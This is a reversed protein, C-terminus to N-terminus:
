RGYLADAVKLIARAIMKSHRSTMRQNLSVSVTRTLVSITNPCMDPSYEVKGIYAPHRWPDNAPTVPLKNLVYDWYRYIHRDPFGENHITGVRVGEASLAKAFRRSEEADDFLFNLSLACDGEADPLRMPRLGPAGDIEALVEQKRQRMSRIMKDLKRLQACGVAGALESMRFGNGPFPRVDGISEALDESLRRWFMSASDHYLAARAYVADDNTVVIGGEGTTITKSVQMSFCGVHGISGLRRGKYSGGDAQAADEIVLLDHRGALHMIEDMQSPIGRMHVPMIAKTQPTIKREVDAPDITLTDDIEAIVPVAGCLLVASASAIFTYGPVIVEDGPGVGLATLGTVLASTGSCVALAHKTGVKRAFEREFRLVYSSQANSWRFLAKRDLVDLVNQKEEEGIEHLGHSVYPIESTVAKPGGDIALRETARTPMRTATATAM